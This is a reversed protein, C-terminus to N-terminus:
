GLLLGALLLVGFQLHLQATMPEAPWLEKVQGRFGRAVRQALRWAQPLTLFAALTFVPLIGLWVLTLLSFYAGALLLYYTREAWATGVLTAFSHVGARRDYDMDRLDNAHLIAAVLFAVPLSAWVPISSWTGAQVLYGGEAMLPGMLVAVLPVGLGHYKYAVPRATYFYGGALGLLGLLLIGTGRLALLYIGIGIALIFAVYAAALAQGPALWGKVVAPASSPAEPTDVGTLYDYYTNTLNTGAQLLVGGLTALLGLWLPANGAEVALFVGLLVPIVAATYSFPRIVAWWARGFSVSVATESM